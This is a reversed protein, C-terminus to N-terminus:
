NIRPLFGPFEAQLYPVTLSFKVREALPGKPPKVQEFQRKSSGVFVLLINPDSELIQYKGNKYGVCNIL